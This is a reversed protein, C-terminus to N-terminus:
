HITCIFTSVFSIHLYLQSEIPPRVQYPEALWIEIVTAGSAFDSAPSASVTSRHPHTGSGSGSGGGYSTTSERTESPDVVRGHM